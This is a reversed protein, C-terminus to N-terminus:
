VLRALCAACVIGDRDPEHPMRCVACAAPFLVRVLGRAMTGFRARADPLVRREASGMVGLAGRGVDGYTGARHRVLLSLGGGGARDADDHRRPGRTWPRAGGARVPDRRAWLRPRVGCM